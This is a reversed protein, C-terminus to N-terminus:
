MYDKTSIKGRLLLLTRYSIIIACCLGFLQLILSPKNKVEVATSDNFYKTYSIEIRKRDKIKKFKKLSIKIQREYNQMSFENFFSYYIRCENNKKNLAINNITGKTVKAFFAYDISLLVSYIMSLLFFFSLITMIMIAINDLISYKKKSM